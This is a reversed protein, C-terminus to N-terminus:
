GQSAARDMNPPANISCVVGTPAFAIDVDGHLEQALSREILRTGFGRRGPEFVPPGGTERWVIELRAGYTVANTGLEQLPLAIALAIRPPLRVRVSSTSAHKMPQSPLPRGIGLLKNMFRLACIAIRANWSKL